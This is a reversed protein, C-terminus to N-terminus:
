DHRHRKAARMYLASLILLSAIVLSISITHAQEYQFSEVHDFIAISLVRTEEPINGGILLVVGFEGVTHSFSLAAASAFGSKSMPIVLKCFRGLSSLGMLQAADLSDQDVERFAVYLPHVAFPLSFIVSGIVIGSFSFALQTNFTEILLAGLWTNPSFALLLYFGLVTPPLILPLAVLAQLFPKTKSKTRALYWAIPAAIVLLLITTLTALKLTLSLANLDDM